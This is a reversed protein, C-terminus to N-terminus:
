KSHMYVMPLNNSVEKYIINRIYGEYYENDHKIIFKLGESSTVTISYNLQGHSLVLKPLYVRAYKLSQGQSKNITM